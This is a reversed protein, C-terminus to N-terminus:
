MLRVERERQRQWERLNRRRHGMDSGRCTVKLSSTSLSADQIRVELKHFLTIFLMRGLPITVHGLWKQPKPVSKTIRTVTLRNQNWDLTHSTAQNSQEVKLQM